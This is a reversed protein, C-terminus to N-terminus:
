LGRIVPKGIQAGTGLTRLGPLAELVHALSVGQERRLAEGSLTAVPLPSLDPAIPQRTATLTVAELAFPSAVLQVDVTTTGHVAIRRSAPAFGARTVILTYTGSPVSLGFAGDATTTVHAGLEVIEITALAVPQVSQDTVRGKLTDASALTVLLLFVHM